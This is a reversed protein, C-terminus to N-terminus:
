KNWYRGIANTWVQWEKLKERFAILVRPHTAAIAKNTPTFICGDGDLAFIAEVLHAGPPMLM